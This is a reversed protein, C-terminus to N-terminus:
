VLPRFLNMIERATRTSFPIGTLRKRERERKEHSLQNLDDLVRDTFISNEKIIKKYKINKKHSSYLFKYDKKNLKVNEFFPSSLKLAIKDSTNLYDPM